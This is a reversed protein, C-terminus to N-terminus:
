AEGEPQIWELLVFMDGFKDAVQVQSIITWGDAKDVLTRQKIFELIAVDPQSQIDFKQVRYEKKVGFM